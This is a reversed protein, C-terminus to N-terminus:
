HFKKLFLRKENHMGIGNRVEEGGGEAGEKGGGWVRM